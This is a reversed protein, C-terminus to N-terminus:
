LKNKQTKERYLRTKKAKERIQSRVVEKYSQVLECKIFPSTPSTNPFETSPYNHFINLTKRDLALGEWIIYNENTEYPAGTLYQPLAEFSENVREIRWALVYDGEQSGEGSLLRFQGTQAGYVGYDSFLFSTPADLCAKYRSASIVGKKAPEKMACNCILGKGNIPHAEQAVVSFSVCSLLVVWAAIQTIISRSMQLKKGKFLLDCRQALATLYALLPPAM